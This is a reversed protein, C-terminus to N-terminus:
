LFIMGSQYASVRIKKCAFIDDAFNPVEIRRWSNGDFELICKENGFYMVGRKDQVISWNSNDSKYEKPSYYKIFPQGFDPYKLNATQSFV